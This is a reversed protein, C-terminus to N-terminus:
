SLKDFNGLNKSEKAKGYLVTDNQLLFDVQCFHVAKSLFFFYGM